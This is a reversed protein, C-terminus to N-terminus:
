ASPRYAFRVTRLAAEATGSVLKVFRKGYLHNIWDALSVNHSVAVNVSILNGAGDYLAQYVTGDISTQFSITTGTFAAPIELDTIMGDGLDIAASVTASQAITTSSYRPIVGEAPFPNIVAIVRFTDGNTAGSISVTLVGFVALRKTPAIREQIPTAPVTYSLLVPKTTMPDTSDVVTIVAAATLAGVPIIIFREVVGIPGTTTNGTGTTGSVTITGTDAKSFIQNRIGIAPM